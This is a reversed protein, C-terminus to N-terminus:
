LPRPSKGSHGDHGLGFMKIPKAHCSISSIVNLVESRDNNEEPLGYIVVSLSARESHRQSTLTESVAAKKKFIYIYIYIYM